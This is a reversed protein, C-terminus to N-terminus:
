EPEETAPEKDKIETDPGVGSEIKDALLGLERAEQENEPDGLFDILNGPDNGFRKRIDAPLRQFDAKADVMRNMLEHYDMGSSFDGFNPQVGTGSPLIGKRARAVIRNINVTERHSQECLSEGEVVRSVRRTGDPRETVQLM